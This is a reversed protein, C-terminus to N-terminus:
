KEAFYKEKIIHLYERTRLTNEKVPFFIDKFSQEKPLIVFLYPLGYQDAKHLAAFDKVSFIKYTIHNIHQFRNLNQINDYTVFLEIDEDKFIGKSEKLINLITDICINCSIYSLRVGLKPTLIKPLYEYPISNEKDDTLGALKNVPLDSNQIAYYDLTREQVVNISDIKYRDILLDKGALLDKQRNIKVSLLFFM